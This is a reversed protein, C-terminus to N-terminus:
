PIGTNEFSCIDTEDCMHLQKKRGTFGKYQIKIWTNPFQTNWHCLDDTGRKSSYM